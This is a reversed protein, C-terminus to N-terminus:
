VFTPSLDASALFTAAVSAGTSGFAGAPGTLAAAGFHGSPFIQLLYSVLVM